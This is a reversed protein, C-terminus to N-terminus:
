FFHIFLHKALVQGSPFIHCDGCVTQRTKIVLVAVIVVVMFCVRRMTKFAAFLKRGLGLWNNMQMKVKVLPESIRKCLYKTSM